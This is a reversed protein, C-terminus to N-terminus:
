AAGESTPNLLKLFREVIPDLYPLLAVTSSKASTLSPRRLTPTYGALIYSDTDWLCVYILHLLFLLPLSSLRWDYSALMSPIYQFADVGFMDVRRWRGPLSLGPCHGAVERLGGDGFGCVRHLRICHKPEFGALASAESLVTM